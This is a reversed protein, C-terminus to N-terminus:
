KELRLLIVVGGPTLGVVLLLEFECGESRVDVMKVMFGVGHQFSPIVIGCWWLLVKM